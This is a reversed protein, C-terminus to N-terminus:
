RLLIGGGVVRDGRYFVASQGPSIGSVPERFAIRINEGDPRITARVERMRYRIKVDVDFQGTLTEGSVINTEGVVAGTAMLDDQTGLTIDGTDANRRVVYQRGEPSSVNLGRRQGITYFAVGEHEGVPNGDTDVFRGSQKLLPLERRIFARYDNDPIFCVEQSEAREANPLGLARAMERVEDKTMEGVPFISSVLQKQGLRYLFYSQDKTVDLAKMLARNDTGGEVLIRAYHGTALRDAGMLGALKLLAGFKIKENCRVCPNPTRGAVYEGLFNEVVSKRFNESVDFVEHHIGLASCADAAAKVMPASEREGGWLRMTVGAVEFGAHVLIAAAVTSDVGGSMAVAVKGKM